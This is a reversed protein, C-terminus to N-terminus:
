LKSGIPIHPEDGSAVDINASLEEPAVLHATLIPDLHTGLERDATEVTYDVQPVM